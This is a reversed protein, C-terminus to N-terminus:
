GVWLGLVRLEPHRTERRRRRTTLFAEHEFAAGQQHPPSVKTSPTTEQLSFGVGGLLMPRAANQNNHDCTEPAAGPAAHLTRFIHIHDRVSPM